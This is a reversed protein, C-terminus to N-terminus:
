RASRGRRYYGIIQGAIRAALLEHEIRHPDTFVKTARLVVARFVLTVFHRVSWTPVGFVRRGYHPYREDLFASTVGLRAARKRAYSVTYAHVPVHHGIRADPVYVGTMGAAIMRQQAETEEGVASLWEPTPGLDERFAGIKIFDRPFVAWNSGIFWNTGEFLPPRHVIMEAGLDFGRTETTLHMRLWEPCLAHTDPIVPGGFFHGPGFARAANAYGTLTGPSVQVDDDLFVVLDAQAIMCAHNLTRSKGSEPRFVYRIPFPIQSTRSIDEASGKTGNEVLLIDVSIDPRDCAGLSELTQQLLTARGSTPIVVTMRRLDFPM